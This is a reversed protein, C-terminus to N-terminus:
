GAPPRVWSDDPEYGLEILFDGASDRFVARDKQTFVERWEGAIGRRLFETPREEGRQRGKTAREFSAREICSRVHTAAHDAGLFELVASLVREPDTQMDEYRLELYHDGLLRRGDDRASRTMQVWEEATGSLWEPTFISHGEAVFSSASDRYADRTALEQGDLEHIGGQGVSRNWIHHKASIAVDRGDRIIHLVKAEPHIEAIEAVIDSSLFPTKDGIIRKKSSAVASGLFHDALVRTAESLQEDTDGERTWVSRELWSRLAENSAIAGALPRAPITKTEAGPLVYDRGFFRGEGRCVIEPHADLTRTLWTTGSKARGVIFFVDPRSGRDGASEGGARETTRAGLWRGRRDPEAPPDPRRGADAVTAEEADTTLESGNGGAAVAAPHIRPMRGTANAETVEEYLALLEDAGDVVSRPTRAQARLREVLEPESILRRLRGELGDIDGPEFLLGNEGDGVVEAMGGLNSAIVPVGAAQASYITLPANEYWTSPVIQADIRTLRQPVRENAIQGAFRIRPDGAALSYLEDFYESDRRPDGVIELTAGIEPELRRFADIMLHVGKPRNITGIYGFRMGNTSPRHGSRVAEFASLDISYPSVRTREAPMGNAVLMDRMLETPALIADLREFRRRLFDTRGLVTRIMATHREGDAEPDLAREAIKRYLARRKDLKEPREVNLWREVRRCELCNSSIEDPGTCLEGSHKMLIGRMCFSWFDTSTFILPVELERFADISLGGLRGIHFMHVIDPRLERNFGRIWNAVQENRYEVRLKNGRQPLHLAVVRLGRYEYEVSEIEMSASTTDPDVTLLRVDHGRRLLELAADRAAVETGASQKPFFQHTTILIKM